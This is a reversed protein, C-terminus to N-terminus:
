STMFHPGVLALLLGARKRKTRECFAFSLSRGTSADPFASFVMFAETVTMM